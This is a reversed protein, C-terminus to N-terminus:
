ETDKLYIDKIQNEDEEYITGKLYDVRKLFLNLELFLKDASKIQERRLLKQITSNDAKGSSKEYTEIQKKGLEKFEYPWCHAFRLYFSTKKRIDEDFFPALIASFAQVAQTYNLGNDTGKIHEVYNGYVKQHDTNTFERSAIKLIRRQHELVIQKFSLEKEGLNQTIFEGM